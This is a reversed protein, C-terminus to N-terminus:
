GSGPDPVGFLLRLNAGHREERAGEPWVVYPAQAGAQAAIGEASQIRITATATM